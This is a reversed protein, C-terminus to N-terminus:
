SGSCGGRARSGARRGMGVEGVGAGSETGVKIGIESFSYSHIFLYMGCPRASGSGSVM